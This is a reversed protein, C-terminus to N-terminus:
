RAKVLHRFTESHEPMVSEFKKVGNLAGPFLHSRSLEELEELERDRETRRM